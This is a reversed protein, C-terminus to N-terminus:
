RITPDIPLSVVIRTPGGYPSEVTIDGRLGRVRERLGILGHDPRFEAGGVGYDTITIWASRHGNGLVEGVLEASPSGSHKVINTLLEAVVYYLGRQAEASLAQDLEPAIDVAVDVPAQDALSTLAAVLGRDALLPPAVGRSVARVEDLALQTQERASNIAETAAELDNAAIRREAASLDLQLRVLRQQPGDHLDRELRRMSTDEASVAFERAAKEAAAQEALDDSEWRGLALKALTHHLLTFGTVIFPLTVLAFLGIVLSFAWDITGLNWDSLFPIHQQLWRAEELDGNFGPIWAWIWFTTGFFACAVWTITFTWSILSLIPSLIMQHALYAWYHGSLLPAVVKHVLTPQENAEPWRPKEIEPLRTWKLMRREGEGFLRAVFQTAAIVAVGIVIVLLSVGLSFLSVLAIFAVVAYPFLTLLYATSGPLRRLMGPAKQSTVPKATM